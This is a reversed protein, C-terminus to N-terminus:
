ALSAKFLQAKANLCGTQKSAELNKESFRLAKTEM